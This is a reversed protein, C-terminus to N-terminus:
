TYLSGEQWSSAEEVLQRCSVDPVRSLAEEALALIVKEQDSYETPTSPKVNSGFDIAPMNPRSNGEAPIM